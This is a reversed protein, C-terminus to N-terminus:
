RELEPMNFVTQPQREHDIQVVLVVEGTTLKTVYQKVPMMTYTPLMSPDVRTGNPDLMITRM